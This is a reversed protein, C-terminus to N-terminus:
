CQAPSVQVVAAWGVPIVGVSSPTDPLPDFSTQANPNSPTISCKSPVAHDIVGVPVRWDDGVVFDYWFAGISKLRRM